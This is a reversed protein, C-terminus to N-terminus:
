FSTNDLGNMQSSILHMKQHHIIEDQRDMELRKVLEPDLGSERNSQLTKYIDAKDNLLLATQYSNLNRIRNIKTHILARKFNHEVQTQYARSLDEREISSGGEASPCDLGNNLVTKHM